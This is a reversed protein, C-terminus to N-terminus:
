TKQSMHSTKYLHTHYIMCAFVHVCACRRSGACAGVGVSVHAAERTCERAGVRVRLRERLGVCM